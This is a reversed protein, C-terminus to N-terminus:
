YSRSVVLRGFRDFIEITEYEKAWMEWGKDLFIRWTNGSFNPDNRHNAICSNYNFHTKIFAVCSSSLFKGDVCNYCINGDRDRTEFEPTRCSSMRKVFNRCETDLGEVGPEDAPRPCSMPLPPTFTYEPMDELYGSCMNEKFSIIKYPSQSSMSGTTIVATEGNELIINQLLSTGNPAIFLAGQPIVAVDSPFYRLDGGISYARKNKANKVQWGTIDVPDRGRNYITIYEEYSQYSYAANGASISIDKTYTSNPTNSQPATTSTSPAGTGKPMIIVIVILIALIILGEANSNGKKM